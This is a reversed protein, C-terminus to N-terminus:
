HNEITSPDRHLAESLRDAFPKAWGREPAIRSTTKATFANYSLLVLKGRRADWFTWLSKWTFGGSRGLDPLIKVQVTVPITVYRVNYKKSIQSLAGKLAEPVTRDFASYAVPFDARSKWPSLNELPEGDAFHEKLLNQLMTRIVLSDADPIRLGELMQEHVMRPFSSEILSDEFHALDFDVADASFSHCIKENEPCVASINQAPFSGLIATSDFDALFDPNIEVFGKEDFIELELEGREGCEECGSDGMPNEAPRNGACSALFFALFLVSYQIAKASKM